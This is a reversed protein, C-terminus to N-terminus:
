PQITEAANCYNVLLRSSWSNQVILEKRMSVMASM